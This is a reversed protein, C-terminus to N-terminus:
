KKCENIEGLFKKVWFYLFLCLLCQSLTSSLSAGIRNYKPILLFDLFINFFLIVFASLFTFIQKNIAALIGGYLFNLSIFILQWIIIKLISISPTYETNYLLLIIPKSYIFILFSLVFSIGFLYKFSSKIIKELENRSVISLESLSPYIVAMYLSPVFILTEVIKWSANFWGAHNDTGTIHSLLIVDIRPFFSLIISSLFFPLGTNFIEKLFRINIKMQIPSIKSLYVILSYLFSIISFLVYLSACWIISFKFKMVLIVGIFMGVSTFIQVIAQYFFYNFGQFIAVFNNYLVNLIASIGILFIVEKKVLSYNQGFVFLTFFFFILFSLFIRFTFINNVYKETRSNDRAIERTILPNFGMDIILVIIGTSAFAFSIIGFNESGLYKALFTFTFFGIIKSIIHAGYLIFINNVIRKKAFIETSTDRIFKTLDKVKNAM